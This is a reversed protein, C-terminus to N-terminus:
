EGDTSSALREAVVSAASEHPRQDTSLRCISVGVAGLAEVLGTLARRYRETFAYIEPPTRHKVDHYKERTRIRQALTPNAADLTVVLDIRDAWELLMRDRWGRTVRDDAPFFVELWALGFIPGEDLLVVSHSAAQDVVQRLADLRIMHTLAELQPARGHIAARILFPIIRAASALLANRPLGWMSIPGRLGANRSCLDQALTSKGSGAPGVLEIVRPRARRRPVM